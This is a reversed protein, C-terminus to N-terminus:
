LTTNTDGACPLSDARICVYIRKRKFWGGGWGVVGGGDWEELDSDLVSSLERLYVAHERWSEAKRM